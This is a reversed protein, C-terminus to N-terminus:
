HINTYGLARWSSLGHLSGAPLGLRPSVQPGGRNHLTLRWLVREGWVRGWARGRGKGGAKQPDLEQCIGREAQHTTEHQRQQFPMISPRDKTKEPTAKHLSPTARLPWDPKPPAPRGSAKKTTTLLRANPRHAVRIVKPCGWPENGLKALDAEM